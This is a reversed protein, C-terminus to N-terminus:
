LYKLSLKSIYFLYAEFYYSTDPKKILFQLTMDFKCLSNLYLKQHFQKTNLSLIPKIIRILINLLTFCRSTGQKFNLPLNEVERVMNPSSDFARIQEVIM